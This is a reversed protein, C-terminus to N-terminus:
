RFLRGLFSRQPAAQTPEPAPATPQSIEPASIIMAEVRDEPVSNVAQKPAEIPALRAEASGLRYNASEIQALMERREDRLMTIVQEKARNDIRLNVLEDELRKTVSADIHKETERAPQQQQPPTRNHGTTDPEPRDYGSMAPATRSEGFQLAQQKQKILKEASARSILYRASTPTEITICDLEGNQCFRRISRPNRPVGAEAFVESVEEVTLMYDSTDPESRVNGSVAPWLNNELEQQM